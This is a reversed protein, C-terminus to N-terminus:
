LWTVDHHKPLSQSGDDRNLTARAAHRLWLVRPVPAVVHERCFYALPSHTYFFMTVSQNMDGDEATAATNATDTTAATAALAATATLISM